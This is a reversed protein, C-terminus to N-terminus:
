TIINFYITIMSKYRMLTLNCKKGITYPSFYLESDNESCIFSSSELRHPYSSFLEAFTTEDNDIQLNHALTGGTLISGMVIFYNKAIHMLNTSSHLPFSNLVTTKGSEIDLIFVDGSWKSSIIQTDNNIFHM